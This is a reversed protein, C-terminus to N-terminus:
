CVLGNRITHASGEKERRRSCYFGTQSQMKSNEAHAGPAAVFANLCFDDAAQNKNSYTTSIFNIDSSLM